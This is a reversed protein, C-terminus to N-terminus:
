LTKHVILILKQSIFYLWRIDIIFIFLAFWDFSDKTNWNNPNIKDLYDYKLLLVSSSVWLIFSISIIWIKWDPINIIRKFRSEPIEDPKVHYFIQQLISVELLRELEEKQLKKETSTLVDDSKKKNFSALSINLFNKNLM